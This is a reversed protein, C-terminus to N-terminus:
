GAMLFAEVRARLGAFGDVLGGREAGGDIVADRCL